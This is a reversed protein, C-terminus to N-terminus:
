KGKEDESHKDELNVVVVWELRAMRKGVKEVRKGNKRRRKELRKERKEELEEKVKGLERQVKELEKEREEEIKARKEESSGTTKRKEDAKTNIKLNKTEARAIAKELKTARASDSQDDSDSSASSSEDYEMANSRVRESRGSFADPTLLSGSEKKELEMGEIGAKVDVLEGDKEEVASRRRTQVKADHKLQREFLKRRKRKEKRTQNKASIKDIINGADEPPPVDFDLPAVKDGLLRL